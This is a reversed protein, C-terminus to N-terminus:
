ITFPIVSYKCYTAHPIAAADKKITRILEDNRSPVVFYDSPLNIIAQRSNM